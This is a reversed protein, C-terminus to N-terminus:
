THFWTGGAGNKTKKYLAEISHGSKCHSITPAGRTRRRGINRHVRHRELTERIERERIERISRLKPTIKTRM